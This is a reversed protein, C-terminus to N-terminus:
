GDGRARKVGGPCLSAAYISGGRRYLLASHVTDLPAAAAYHERRKSGRLLPPSLLPVM